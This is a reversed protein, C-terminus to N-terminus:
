STVRMQSCTYFCFVFTFKLLWLNRLVPYAEEINSFCPFISITQFFKSYTIFAGLLLLLILHIHILKKMLLKSPSIWLILVEYGGFYILPLSLLLISNRVLLFQKSSILLFNFLPLSKIFELLSTFLISILIFLKIFM